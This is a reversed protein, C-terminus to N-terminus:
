IPLASTNALHHQSILNAITNAKSRAEKTSTTCNPRNNWFEKRREEIRKKKKGKGFWCTLVVKTTHSCAITIAPNSFLTSLSTSSSPSSPSSSSSCFRLFLCYRYSLFCLQLLCVCSLSSSHVPLCSFGFAQFSGSPSTFQHSTM